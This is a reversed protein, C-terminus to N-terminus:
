PAVHFPLRLDTWVALQRSLLGDIEDLVEREVHPEEPVRRSHEVVAYVTADLKAVRAGLLRQVPVKTHLALRPGPESGLVVVAELEQALLRVDVVPHTGLLRHQQHARM